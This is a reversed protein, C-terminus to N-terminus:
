VVVVGREHKLVMLNFGSTKNMHDSDSSQFRSLTTDTHHIRDHTQVIARHSELTVMSIM